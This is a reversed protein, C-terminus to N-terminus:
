EGTMVTACAVNVVDFFSAVFMPAISFQFNFISFTKLDIRDETLLNEM